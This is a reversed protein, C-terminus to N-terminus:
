CSRPHSIRGLDHHLVIRERALDIQHSRDWQDTEEELRLIADQAEQADTGLRQRRDSLFLNRDQELFPGFRADELFALM